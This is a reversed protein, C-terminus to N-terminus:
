PSYPQVPMILEEGQYRFVVFSSDPIIGFEKENLIAIRGGIVEFKKITILKRNVKFHCNYGDMLHYSFILEKLTDQRGTCASCDFGFGFDNYTTDLKTWDIYNTRNLKIKHVKQALGFYSLM